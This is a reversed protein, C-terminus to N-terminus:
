SQSAIFPSNLQGTQGRLNNREAKVLTLSISRCSLSDTQSFPRDLFENPWLTEEGEECSFTSPVIQPDPQFTECSLLFLSFSYAV